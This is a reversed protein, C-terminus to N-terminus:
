AATMSVPNRYPQQAVPLFRQPQQSQDVSVPCWPLGERVMMLTMVASLAGPSSGPRSLAGHSSFLSEAAQSNLAFGGRRQLAELAARAERVECEEAPIPLAQLPPPKNNHDL